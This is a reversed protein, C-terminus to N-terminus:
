PCSVSDSDRTWLYSLQESIILPQAVAAQLAWILASYPWHCAKPATVNVPLTHPTNPWICSTHAPERTLSLKECVTRSLFRNILKLEDLTWSRQRHLWLFCACWGWKHIMGKPFKVKSLLFFTQRWTSGIETIGERRSPDNGLSRWQWFFFFFPVILFVAQSPEM